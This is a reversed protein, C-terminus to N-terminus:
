PAIILQLRAFNQAGVANSLAAIENGRRVVSASVTYRTAQWRMGLEAEEVLRKPQVAHLNEGSFYGGQLSADYGVAKAEIKTFGSLGSEAPGILLQGFRLFMSGSVDTHINGFRASVGPTLDVHNGFKMPSLSVRAYLMAGPENGLQGSWGQPQPQHILHHLAVQTGRGGACPGFCGLDVGVRWSSEDPETVDKFVGAYTWGGYPHDPPLVRQPPLKIDSATYLDQGIRWGYVIGDDFHKRRPAVYERTLRVGSTYFGDNRNFLLTDNDVDVITAAAGHARASQFDRVFKSLVAPDDDDASCQFSVLLVTLGVLLIRCAHV